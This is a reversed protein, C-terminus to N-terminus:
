WLNTDIRQIRAQRAVSLNRLKWKYLPLTFNHRHKKFLCWAMFPYQPLPPISGCMRSRLVPQLHNTLKKGWGGPLSGRSLFSSPDWLQRSMTTFLFTGLGRQFEFEWDDLEYDLVTGSGEV